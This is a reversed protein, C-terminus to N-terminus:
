FTEIEDQKQIGVLAQRVKWIDFLVKEHKHFRMTPTITGGNTIGEFTLCYKEL